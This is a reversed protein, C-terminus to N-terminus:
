LLSISSDISQNFQPKSM